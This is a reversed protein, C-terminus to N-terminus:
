CKSLAALKLLEKNLRIDKDDRPLPKVFFDYYGEEDVLIVGLGRVSKIETYYKNQILNKKEEPIVLWSKHVFELNHKAQLLAKKIDELKFEFANFEFVNSLSEFTVLDVGGKRGVEFAYNKVNSRRKYKEWFSNKLDEEYLFM